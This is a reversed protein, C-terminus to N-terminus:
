RSVGELWAALKGAGEEWTPFRMAADRNAIGTRTREARNVVLRRLQAALTADDGPPALCRASAPPLNASLGGVDYAVVALGRAMAERTAMSCTEFRTPLVFLDSRDYLGLLRSPPLPARLRLRDRLPSREIRKGVRAAYAPDLTADGALDWRWELDALSELVAILELLGKGPLLSAVTLLRAPEPPTAVRPLRYRADLGPWVTIVNRIGESLLVGRSYDSTTVVGAFRPLLKRERAAVRSDRRAPDLLHLYHAILIPTVGAVFLPAAERAVLSDILWTGRGLTMGDHFVRPRAN